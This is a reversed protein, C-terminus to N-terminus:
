CPPPSPFAKVSCLAKTALFCSLKTRRSPGGATPALSTASSPRNHVGSPNSFNRADMASNRLYEYVEGHVQNAGARTAINVEAGSNRGYEASYTSNDIKFEEITPQFTIQNQSMDSMQIGNIM